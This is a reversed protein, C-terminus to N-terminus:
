RVGWWKHTQLSLRWEPNERVLRICWSLSRLDLEHGDFAPSLLYHDASVVTKPIGQGHARVYKVEDARRQRIAHEAVKPSVSVWDVGDPVPKSGNTEIAVRYGCDHLYDVLDQDVHLMPEGGTLIVWRCDGGIRRVEDMMQAGTLTRGSAFETDCDFGHTEVACRLNCGSFRLFVNATGARVGEGQVSYFIENVRFRRDAVEAGAIDTVEAM